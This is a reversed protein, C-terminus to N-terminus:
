LPLEPNITLTFSFKLIGPVSNDFREGDLSQVFGSAEINELLSKVRAYSDESVTSLPNKADILRGELELKLPADESKEASENKRALRSGALRSTVDSERSFELKDLWVDEVGLLRQQMDSLFRVWNLRSSVITSSKEIASQLEEIEEIKNLIRSNVNKIPAIQADLNQIEQEHAHIAVTSNILPLAVAACAFLAAAIFYPQQRSFKRQWVISKPVLDVEVADPVFHGIAAGVCNALLAVETELNPKDQVWDLKIKRLPNYEQVKISLSESLVSLLDPLLAGGGTVFCVSPDKELGQMKCIAKTRVVETAIRQRFEASAAAFADKEMDPIATGDIAALKVAEANDFDTDLREEIDHTVSDGGISINRSFFGTGDLYILDTSKAGISMILVPETQEPYNYRFGNLLAVFAPGISDPDMKAEKGYRSLAEVFDTKCAAIVSEFDLDDEGIVHSGWTVEGLPYPINQKAEYAIIKARRAAPVQPIKLYKSLILHGPVVFGVPLESSFKRRVDRFCRSAAKLWLLPDTTNFSVDEVHYEILSCRGNPNMELHAAVLHCSGCSIVLYRSSSM